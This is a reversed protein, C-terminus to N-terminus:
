RTVQGDRLSEFPPTTFHIRDRRGLGDLNKLMWLEHVKGPELEGRLQRVLKHPEIGSNKAVQSAFPGWHISRNRNLM